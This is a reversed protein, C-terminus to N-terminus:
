LRSAVATVIALTVLIDIWFLSTAWTLAKSRPESKLPLDNMLERHV